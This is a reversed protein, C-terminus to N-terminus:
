VLVKKVLLSLVKLIIKFLERASALDTITNDVYTNIEANTKSLLANIVQDQRTETEDVLDQAAQAEAEALAILKDPKAAISADIRAQEEPTLDVLGTGIVLKKAM